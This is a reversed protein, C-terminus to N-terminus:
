RKRCKAAPLVWQHDFNGIPQHGTM